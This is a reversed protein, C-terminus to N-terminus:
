KKDHMWGFAIWACTLFISPILLLAAFFRINYFLYPSETFDFTIPQWRIFCNILGFLGTLVIFTVALSLYM